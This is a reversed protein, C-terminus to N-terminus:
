VFPRDSSLIIKAVEERMMERPPLKNQLLLKRIATGSPCIIENGRHPCIRSSVYGLCRRCYHFEKFFIPTIGLDSFENFIEQADYPGYYNGVGAHDRGVIFHTCGFNKRVIAHFIAERPGAYRMETRLVALIAKDRLYYHKILEEYAELIVEDRFDGPKKKGVVPNIFLGDVFTLATKQVYEHGMHPANRTQFGVVTRWGKEKFLIRTEVPRLTYRLFPNDTNSILDIEGGVLMDNSQMIRMFGPHGSDTTKFIRRVYEAKDYSYIDNVFLRAFPTEQNTLVATDDAKLDIEKITKSSVDLVIPITWPVDNALRMEHLVSDFDTSNLPGELPSFVGYAINEMDIALDKSIEIKAIESLEEQFAKSATDSLERNVLRGGHPKPLNSM